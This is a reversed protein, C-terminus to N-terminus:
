PRHIPFDQYGTMGVWITQNLGQITINTRVIVQLRDAFLREGLHPLLQSYPILMDGQLITTNQSTIVGDPITGNCMLRQKDRDVRYIHVTIDNAHFTLKNPNIIELTIQDLLGGLTLKYKGTLSSDTPLDSLLQELHPPIIDAEVSFNMSKKIGAILVIVEGHVTMRLTKADLAKLLLQGSGTQQQSTKAPITKGQVTVTGVQMGTETEVTVSINEIAMEFSYPNTIEINGTFNVGEQTIESFNGALHIQPLTFQTIINSLSTVMTFKLPLTKKILGLFMVGVTGTIRSTLQNPITGNFRITAAYTFTRNEHAYTEGGDMFLHNIVEGNDTVTIITLNQLFISFSNPNNIFLTTQLVAENANLDVLELTLTTEPLNMTKIDFFIFAGAVINLITASVLIIVIIKKM